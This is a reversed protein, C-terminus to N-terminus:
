SRGWAIFAAAALTIVNIGIQAAEGRYIHFIIAGAMLAIAGLAAYFTLQPMIGFFGPLILGFGVLADFIGTLMVLKRNGATWPWMAALRDAPMFFKMAAGSIFLAALLGQAIWLSVPIVKSASTKM